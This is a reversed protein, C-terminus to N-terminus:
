AVDATTCTYWGSNAAIARDVWQSGKFLMFRHVFQGGASHGWLDILGDNSRFLNHFDVIMPDILFFTWAEMPQEEGNEDYMGGQMYGASGPFDSASFEPAM